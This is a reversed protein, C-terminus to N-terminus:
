MDEQKKSDAKKKGLMYWLTGTLCVSSYCVCVLAVILAVAFGKISATSIILLLVALIFASLTTYIRGPMTQNISMNVIEDMNDKIKSESMNTRIKDLAVVAANVSYGFVILICAMFVSGASIRFIAYFATVLLLDHLLILLVSLVYRINKFRFWVYILICISAILASILVDTKIEKSFACGISESDVDKEAAGFSDTLAKNLEETATSDLERTKIIVKNEEKDDADVVKQIQINHDGTIKSVIPDVKNELEELSMDDSLIVSTATGTGFEMSYNLIGKGRASNVGMSALGIIIVAGSILLYVTKRKIFDITKRERRKRYYKEKTWGLGYFSQIIYRTVILATFMSLIIGVALTKAFGTVMDPAKVAIVAAAILVTINADLVSFLAKRYGEKIATKSSKGTDVAERIRSFVIINADVAMVVSLILGAIGPLTLTVDFANLVLVMLAIYLLLSIAAAIGPLLFIVAMFVLIVGMGIAGAILSSQLAQTGLRAGAEGSHVAELELPLSGIQILSALEKAAEFSKMGYITLENGTFTENITSNSVQKEDYMVAIKKGINAATAAKFIEKGEDTLTLVVVYEKEQAAADSMKKAEAKKIEAGTLATQGVDGDSTGTTVFELSGPKGLEELVESADRSQPVEITIGNSSERYVNAEIGYAIARKQIKHVMEDMVKDAPNVKEAEYTICEGGALDLGLKIEEASGIKQEGLGFVTMFGIGAIILFVILLTMISKTKGM